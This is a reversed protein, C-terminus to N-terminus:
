AQPSICRAPLRVIMIEDGDPNELVPWDEGRVPAVWPEPVAAPAMASAGSGHLALGPLSGTATGIVTGIGTGMLLGYAMAKTMWRIM